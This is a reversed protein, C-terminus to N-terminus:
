KKLLNKNKINKILKKNNKDDLCVFSKGFSPVKNVFNEFYKNILFLVLDLKRSKIKEDKIFISPPKPMSLTELHKKEPQKLWKKM